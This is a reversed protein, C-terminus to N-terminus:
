CMWSCCDEMSQARAARQWGVRKPAMRQRYRRSAVQLCVVTFCVRASRAQSYCQQFRAKISDQAPASPKHRRHRDGVQHGRNVSGTDIQAKCLECERQSSGLIKKWGLM